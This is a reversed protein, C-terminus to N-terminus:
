KGGINKLSQKIYGLEHHVKADYSFDDALLQLEELRAKLSSTSTTKYRISVKILTLRNLIHKNIDNM